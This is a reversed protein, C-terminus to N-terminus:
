YRVPNAKAADHAQQDIFKNGFSSMIILLYIVFILFFPWSRAHNKKAALFSFLAFIAFPIAFIGLYYISRHFVTGAESPLVGFKNLLIFFWIIIYPAFGILCIWHNKYLTNPM